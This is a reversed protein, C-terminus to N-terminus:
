KRRKGGYIVLIVIVSYLNSWVKGFIASANDFHEIILVQNFAIETMEIEDINKRKRLIVSVVPRMRM